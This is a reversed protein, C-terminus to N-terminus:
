RADNRALRCFRTMWGCRREVVWRRPLLVGGKTAEPLQVVEREMQHHQVDRAAQEGTSGQDVCALAVANGTAEQVREAVAAM